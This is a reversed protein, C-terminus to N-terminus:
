NLTDYSNMRILVNFKDTSLMHSATLCDGVCFSVSSPLSYDIQAGDSSRKNHKWSQTHRLRITHNPFISFDREAAGETWLYLRLLHLHRQVFTQMATLPDAARIDVEGLGVECCIACNVASPVNARSSHVHDDSSQSPVVCVEIATLDLNEEWRRIESRNPVASNNVHLTLSLRTKNETEQMHNGLPKM